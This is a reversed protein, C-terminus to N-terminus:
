RNHFAQKNASNLAEDLQQELQALQRIWLLRQIPHDPMKKRTIEIFEWGLDPREASILVQLTFQLGDPSPQLRLAKELHVMTQGFDGNAMSLEVLVRHLNHQVTPSKAYAPNELANLAIREVTKLTVGSCSHKELLQELEMLNEPVDLHLRATKVINALNEARESHNLDPYMICALMLAQIGIAARHEPDHAYTGDLIRLAAYDQGYGHLHFVLHQRARVSDPKYVSWMEAALTPQGWLSTFNFLSVGLVLIYSALAFRVTKAASSKMTLACAVLAYIPGILALYNRHAFYLELSIVTSELLHAALYWFVAFTLLPLRQRFRLALAIVAAWAVIALLTIPRFPSPSVNIHDYFPALTAPNPLFAHFLYQWLIEAQTWLRQWATFERELVTQESYPIQAAMFILLAALPAVLFLWGWLRAAVSAKFLDARLLTFEIVLVLVPLLVGNEKTLVALGTGLMLSASMGALAKWQHGVLRARAALYSLLGALMFTASLTTMRQVIFLSSSALLPMVLWLATSAIAVWHGESTPAGRLRALWLLCWALLTGNLIHLLINTYLFVEPHNPWAYGQLTFSALAIPRGLPGAYGSFIFQAASDPDSVSALGALNHRDDFHLGGGQAPWYLAAVAILIALLCLAQISQTRLNHM